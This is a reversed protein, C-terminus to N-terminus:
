WTQLVRQIVAVDIGVHLANVVEDASRWAWSTGPSRSSAPRSLSQPILRHHMPIERRAFTGQHCQLREHLPSLKGIPPLKRPSEPSVLLEGASSRTVSYTSSRAEADKTRTSTALPKGTKSGAAALATALLIRPSATM